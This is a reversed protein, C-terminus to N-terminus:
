KKGLTCRGLCRLSIPQKNEYKWAGGLMDVMDDMTRLHMASHAASRPARCYPAPRSSLGNNNLQLGRHLSASVCLSM